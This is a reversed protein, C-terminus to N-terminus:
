VDTTRRKANHRMPEGADDSSAGRHAMRRAVRGIDEVRALAFDAYDAVESLGVLVTTM